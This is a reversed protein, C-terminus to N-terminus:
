TKYCFIYMHLLAKMFLETRLQATMLMYLAEPTPLSHHHSFVVRCLHLKHIVRTSCSFPHNQCFAAMIFLGRRLCVCLYKIAQMCERYHRKYRVVYSYGFIKTCVPIKRESGLIPVLWKWLLQINFGALYSWFAQDYVDKVKEVCDARLCVSSLIHFSMTQWVAATSIGTEVVVGLFLEPNVWIKYSFVFCYTLFWKITQRCM